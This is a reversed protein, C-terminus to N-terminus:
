AWKKPRWSINLYAAQKRPSITGELFSLLFSNKLVVEGTESFFVLSSFECAALVTPRKLLCPIFDGSFLRNFSNRLSIEGPQLAQTLPLHDQMNMLLSHVFCQKKQM